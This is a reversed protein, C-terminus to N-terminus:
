SSAPLWAVLWHERWDVKLLLGTEVLECARLLVDGDFPHLLIRREPLSERVQPVILRWALGIM